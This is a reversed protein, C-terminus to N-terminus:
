SVRQSLIDWSAGSANQAKGCGDECGVDILDGRDSKHKKEWPGTPWREVRRSTYLGIALEVGAEGSFSVRREWERGSPMRNFEACVNARNRAKGGEERHIVRSLSLETSLSGGPHSCSRLFCVAPFSTSLKNAHGLGFRGIVSREIAIM